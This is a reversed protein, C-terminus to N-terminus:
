AKGSAARHAVFDDYQAASVAIPQIGLAAVMANRDAPTAFGIMETGAGDMLVLADARDPCQVILKVM